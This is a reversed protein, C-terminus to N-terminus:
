RDLSVTRESMTLAPRQIDRLCRAGLNLLWAIPPDAAAFQYLNITTVVVPEIVTGGGTSGQDINIIRRAPQHLKVKYFRFRCESIKFGRPTVQFLMHLWKSQVAVFGADESDIIFIGDTTIAVGLKATCHVFQIDLGDACVCARGFATDFSGM